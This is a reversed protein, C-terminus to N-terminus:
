EPTGLTPTRQSMALLETHMINLLAQLFAVAMPGVFIGILGMARVGGLVSLLALLPHLKSQGHLVIPKIVNDAMSVVGVGYIALMVAAWLREDYFLLWLSCAGWVAAAGVFPVLALVMTLVTLLVVADIGAVYFGIGALLGQVVASLLTALVVARSIRDFEDLLQRQYRVDLPLLRMIAAVMAPGDALFYYLSIILVALGILLRALVGGVLQGTSLVYSGLLQQIGQRTEKIDDRTPNAQLRLGELLPSGVVRYRFEGYLTQLATVDRTLSSEAGDPPETSTAETAPPESQLTTKIRALLTLMEDLQRQSEQFEVTSAIGREEEPNHILDRRLTQIALELETAENVGDLDLGERPGVISRAELRSIMDEIGPLSNRVDEVPLGLDLGLRHRLKTVKSLLVESNMQAVLGYADAGALAVISVLALVILVIGVTTLGAAVRVHGGLREMLWQHMPRFMVVLTVAVFIPLLFPAVVQFFLVGFIVVIAALVIFSVLRAM